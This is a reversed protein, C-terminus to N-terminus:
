WATPRRCRRTRSRACDGKKLDIELYHVPTKGGNGDRDPLQPPQWRSQFNRVEPPAGPRPTDAILIAPWVRAHPQEKSGAPLSVDLIRISKKEILVKHTGPALAVADGADPRAAGCAAARLGPPGLLACTVVIWGSRIM